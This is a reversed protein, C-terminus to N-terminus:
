GYDIKHPVAKATTNSPIESYSSNTVDINYDIINIYPSIEYIQSGILKQIKKYIGLYHIM